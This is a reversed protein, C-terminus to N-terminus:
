AAPIIFSFTSGENLTSQVWVRGGFLEILPHVLSLGLGTGGAEVKLPNETRYFRDFIRDLEEAAIGVGTDRIEILAYRSKVKLGERLHEPVVEIDVERAELAISGGRPTYKVANSLMNALIQNLRRADARVLPLGPPISITLTHERARISPQLEIVVTSLAEAMHLPRMDLEVSGTEIKTIDLLDNIISIMREANMQIIQLFEKQTDNVPGLSGMSLLQTFGKISTMPTRLEHSVTGIFETKLRDSAIERTIDRFVAVAGMLAEKSNLVPGLTISIMRTGTQYVTSFTRPRHHEDTPQALLAEVPVEDARRGLLRRFLEPLNWIVLEEISRELILECAMNAALVSGDEGCVIVGDSLSQLIAQSQSAEVEQRQFMESRHMLEKELETYLQANNIGIAIQGASANLLRLHDENFYGNDDHSLLLVGLMQHHAILPVAIMSGVQKHIGDADPPDVWRPDKTIDAIVAPKKHQAVWGVIGQGIAFRRFGIDGPRDLVACDVLHETEPEVLMISGHTVGALKALANLSVQLLSDRDLTSSIEMAIEHVTELTDREIQLQRTRETIRQELVSNFSLVEDYLRANEIAIAAQSAASKVFDQQSRDMITQVSPDQIVIVGIVQRQAIMPVSLVAFGPMHWPGQLAADVDSEAVAEGLQFARATLDGADAIDVRMDAPPATAPGWSRALALTQSQADFLWISLLAVELAAQLKAGVIELQQARDMSASLGQAIQNLNSVQLTTRDTAETDHYLSEVLLRTENLERQVVEAASLWQNVTAVAVYDLLQDFEEVLQNWEHPAHGNPPQGPKFIMEWAARRLQFTLALQQPLEDEGPHTRLARLLRLCEDLPMYDGAAASVLGDYISRLLVNREDPHAIQDGSNHAVAGNGAFVRQDLLTLWRTLLLDRNDRLWHALPTSM